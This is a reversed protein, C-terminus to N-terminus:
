FQCPRVVRVYWIYYIRQNKTVTHLFFSHDAMQVICLFDSFADYTSFTYLRILFQFPSLSHSYQRSRHSNEYMHLPIFKLSISNRLLLQITFPSIVNTRLLVDEDFLYLLSNWLCSYHLLSLLQQLCLYGNTIIYM